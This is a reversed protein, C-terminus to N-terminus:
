KAIEKRHTNIEDRLKSAALRASDAYDAGSGAFIIGRSANIMLGRGAPNLGAALASALDGGQTGTGPVLIPMDPGVIGRIERLEDPYTSGVVLSCNGHTNWTTAVQRAVHVYLPQGAAILDQFEGAGPNSTRCLVIIGKDAHRLFAALSEAGMYPPVTVADAGLYDFVYEVYGQNSNGIDGRKADIIFPIDPHHAKIYDCTQKLAEVGPAGLAEYFAPNLKFVCAFEATADIIAQNFIFQGINTPLKNHDPDLGICLLSDTRDVSLNLKDTFSVMIGLAIDYPLTDRQRSTECYIKHLFTYFTKAKELKPTPHKVYLLDDQSKNILKAVYYNGLFCLLEGTWAHM